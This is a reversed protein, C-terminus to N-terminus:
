WPTNFARSRPRRPSGVTASRKSGSRWTSAAESGRVGVLGGNRDGVDGFLGNAELVLAFRPSLPQRLDAGIRITSGASEMSGDGTGERSAETLRRFEVRPVLRTERGVPIAAEGGLAM